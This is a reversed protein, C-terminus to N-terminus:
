KATFSSIFNVHGLQKLETTNVGLQYDGDMKGHVGIYWMGATQSTIRCTEISTGNKLPACLFVDATPVKDRSVYLDVDDSIKRLKVTLKAPKDLEISYFHWDDYDIVEHIIDNAYIATPESQEASAPATYFLTSSLQLLMLPLLAPVASLSHKM